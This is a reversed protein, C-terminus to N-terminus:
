LVGESKLAAVGGADIGLWSHLVDATDGGLAPSGKVRVSKGDVRVPWSAMKYEGSHHKVNQMFGRQEFTPEDILEQTDFV